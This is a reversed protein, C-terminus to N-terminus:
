SYNGWAKEGKNRIQWSLRFAKQIMISSTWFYHDNDWDLFLLIIPIKIKWMCDRKLINWNKPLFKCCVPGHKTERSQIFFHERQKSELSNEKVVFHAYLSQFRYRFSRLPQKWVFPLYTKGGNWVRKSYSYSGNSAFRQSTSWLIWCLIANRMAFELVWM